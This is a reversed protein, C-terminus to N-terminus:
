ISFANQSVNEDVYKGNILVGLANTKLKRYKAM